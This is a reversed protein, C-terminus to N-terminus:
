ETDKNKTQKNNDQHEIVKAMPSLKTVEDAQVEEVWASPSVFAPVVLVGGHKVDVDLHSRDRYGPTTRKAEMEIMKVAPEHCSGVVEGNRDYSIRHIGKFSWDRIVQGVKEAYCQEAVACEADFDKDNKRMAQITHYHVGAVRSAAYGLGTEAYHALYLGVEEDSMKVKAMRLKTRWNTADYRPAM